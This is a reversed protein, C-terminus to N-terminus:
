RVENPFFPGLISYCIMSSFNVSAISILTLIQQRTMRQPPEPTEPAAENETKFSVRSCVLFLCVILSFYLESTGSRIVM